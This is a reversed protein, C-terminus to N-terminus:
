LTNDHLKETNMTINEPVPEPVTDKSTPKIKLNSEKAFSFISQDKGGLNIIGSKDNYILDLILKAAEDVYIGSKKCDFFAKNHRFPKPSHASRLILHDPVARASCEGGLKSWAYDNVPLLPDEEKYNGTTGPYVYDTSIYVIKKNYKICALAVNATGIINTQISIAPNDTHQKMPVTLAAAHLIVDPNYHEILRDIIAYNTIDVDKGFPMLRLDDYINQKQLEKGLLGKGGTILVKM